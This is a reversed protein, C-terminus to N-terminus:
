QAKEVEGIVDFEYETGLLLLKNKVYAKPITVVFSDGNEWIKGKFIM